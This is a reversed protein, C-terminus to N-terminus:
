KDMKTFSIYNNDKYSVFNIGQSNNLVGQEVQGNEYFSIAGGKYNVDSIIAGLFM